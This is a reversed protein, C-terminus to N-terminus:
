SARFALKKIQIKKVFKVPFVFRGSHPNFKISIVPILFCYVRTM